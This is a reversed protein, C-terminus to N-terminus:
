GAPAGARTSPYREGLEDSVSVAAPSPCNRLHERIM